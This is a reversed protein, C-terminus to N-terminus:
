KTHERGQAAQHLTPAAGTSHNSRRYYQRQSRPLFILSKTEPKENMLIMSNCQDVERIYGNIKNRPIAAEPFPCNM